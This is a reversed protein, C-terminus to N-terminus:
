RHNNHLDKTEDILASLTDPYDRAFAISARLLGEKNGCDFRRGEYEMGYVADDQCVKLIADTLQIEGGVGPKISALVDMVDPTLVYRGVIAKNSPPNVKPKEVMDNLKYLGNGEDSDISVVGYLHTKEPAVSQLGVISKQVTAFRDVLQKTVSEKSYFIDDPLIVVFPEDNIVSAAQLIAHGLGKQEKQRVFIPHVRNSIDKMEHYLDTKGAEKLAQNLQFNDDFYDDLARKHNATVFIIEEIGAAIAEMVAYHILPKNVINLLEKPISKTAPLMRTGFGAVPFVAKKIM